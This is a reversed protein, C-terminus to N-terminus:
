LDKIYSGGCESGGPECYFGNGSDLVRCEGKDGHTCFSIPKDIFAYSLSAVLVVGFFFAAIKKRM